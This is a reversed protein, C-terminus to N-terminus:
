PASPPGDRQSGDRIPPSSTVLLITIIVIQWLRQAAADIINRVAATMLPHPAPSVSDASMNRPIM